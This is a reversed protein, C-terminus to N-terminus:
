RVVDDAPGPVRYEHPVSVQVTQTDLENFLWEAMAIQGDSAHVTVSKKDNDSSAQRIDTMTRMLTAVEQFQQVNSTHTLYFVRDRDQGSAFAAIVLLGAFIPRM